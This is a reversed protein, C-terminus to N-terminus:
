SGDAQYPWTQGAPATPYSNGGSNPKSLIANLEGYFDLLQHKTTHEPSVFPDFVKNIDERTKAHSLSDKIIHQTRADIIDTTFERFAEGKKWDNVACKRWRKIEGGIAEMDAKKASQSVANPVNPSEM